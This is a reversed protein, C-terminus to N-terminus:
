YLYLWGKIYIFNNKMIEFIIILSDCWREFIIYLNLWQIFKISDILNVLLWNIFNFHLFFFLFEFKSMESLYIIPSLLCIKATNWIKLLDKETFKSTELLLKLDLRKYDDSFLNLRHTSIKNPVGNSLFM